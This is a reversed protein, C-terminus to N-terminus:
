DFSPIDASVDAVDAFRQYRVESRLKLSIGRVGDRWKGVILDAEGNPMYDREDLHYYDERHLFLIGDADQEIAGSDRLDSMSPIHGERSEVGRSLQAVVLGAVNLEKWLDSMALSAATIQQYRDKGPAHVRQLHDLVILKVGYKGVLMSAAAAIDDIRRVNEAIFLPIPSLKTIGDSVKTWEDKTLGSNRIRKNDILTESSLLNRGIKCRGEELSIIAAPVGSKAVNAAIQKALVSKGMSPRGAVIVEEGIGLGGFMEDIASFGTPITETGGGTMQDFVEILVEDLKTVKGRAAQQVINALKTLYEQGIETASEGITPGWARRLLDNSFSILQRLISANRVIKAYHEGHAASPMTNFLEGLYAMGGIEELINRKSLESSVIVADIPKSDRVLSAVVEFIIQNDASFFDGKGVIAVIRAAEPGDMLMSALTAKEAKADQPPLRDFQSIISDSQAIM